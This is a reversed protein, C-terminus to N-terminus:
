KVRHSRAGGWCTGTIRKTVGALFPSTIRPGIGRGGPILGEAPCGAGVIIIILGAGMIIRSGAGGRMRSGPGAMDTVGVGIDRAIRRGILPFVARVGSGAMITPILGIAM